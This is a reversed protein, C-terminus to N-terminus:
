GEQERHELDTRWRQTKIGTRYRPEEPGKKKKKKKKSQM